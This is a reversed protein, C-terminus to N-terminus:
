PIPPRVRYHVPCRASARAVGGIQGPLPAISTFRPTLEFEAFLRTATRGIAALSFPQAPCTHRGHGFSTVLERSALAAEDRLHRGAWRDPDYSTLGPASSTNLLPLLTAITAGQGVTRVAVGDDIDVPRLVYRLMISRQALRTSELACREALGPEGARLRDAVATHLLLHAVTWGLAAFLNSMSALHILVVDRAIGVTAQCDGEWRGVIEALLEDATDVGESLTQAILKEAAALAAREVAMDAAAVAAMDAPYVFASSGDLLDLAAILSDFRSGEASRRGAWSALGLRHGLRRAFSFLELEGQDGLEAIQLDIAYELQDLYRRVDDRGFLEHPLTRRGDFIEPPLKRSLMRWDGVGKSAREEPLGYFSRVGAPSFVFLYRDMGSDVIFTDGHRHRAAELHAVPDPIWRDWPLGFGVALPPPPDVTPRTPGAPPPPAMAEVTQRTVGQGAEGLRARISMTQISEHGCRPSRRLPRRLSRRTRSYRGNWFVQWEKVGTPVALLGAFAGNDGPFSAFGLYGLDGRPSLM